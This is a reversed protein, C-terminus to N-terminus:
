AAKEAPTPAANMYDDYSKGEARALLAHWDAATPEKDSHALDVFQRALGPGYQALLQGIILALQM